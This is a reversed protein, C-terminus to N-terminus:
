AITNLNQGKGAEQLREASSESSEEAASGEPPRAVPAQVLKPQASAVESSGNIKM